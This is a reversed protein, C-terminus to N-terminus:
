IDELWKKIEKKEKEPLVLLCREILEIPFLGLGDPIQKWKQAKGTDRCNICEKTEM